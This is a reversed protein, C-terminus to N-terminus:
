APEPADLVERITRLLDNRLCPKQIFHQGKNLIANTQAVNKSYGSAFLFRVRPEAASIHQMVAWGGMKPMVVDLFALDIKGPHEKFVRLAEEGDLATLVTYGVRTLINKLLNLLPLEDEALLITESGGPPAEPCAIEAPDVPQDVAPLYVRFTSGKGPASQVRIMGNHQKVIGFVTSLGLGTGQGVEKTTFFPEFIRDRTEADMGCGTDTVSVLVYHGPTAWTHEQCYTETLTVAETSLTMRGGDPMADRANICLNMLVQEMQGQDAYITASSAGPVIRLEIHEGLIRRVMKWVGALVENLDLHTPRIVQRRSFALLQRTVSAAKEAAQRMEGFEEYHPVNADVQLLDLNGLIVQLLNNFDHAVGGALQGIAEMKQSQRLQEELRKRETIDSVITAFQGPAPSYAVVEYHKNLADAWHDFQQPVGTLAVEGYVEIWYDETAPMVERVTMGILSARDLGTLREFAPNVELFRYDVPKGNADCVIEHLAFGDLMDEFLLRYRHESEALAAQTQRQALAIAIQDAMSELFAILEPSFRGRMRDNLQLLGLTRGGHRLPILAVSEYGEGNCRNRTRAQRDAETTSALLETTCNSWFSGRPSFFPKTPDFRGCLINGCMCELVPNGAEDRLLQGDLDRACLRNESRIFEPPFGRTEFYPFDDGDRLRIGVAECGTWEHLSRTLQEILEHTRNQDNLLRMLKLTIEREHQGRREQTMDRFFGLLVERGDLELVNAKVEFDRLAGSKTVLRTEIVQGCMEGRHQAFVSSVSLPIDEPPHLISQPNGILDEREYELLRLLHQNCDLLIGSEADALAIGETAEEFLKRYRAESAKLAEESRKRETIDAVTILVQVTGNIQVPTTSILCDFVAGEGKARVTVRGEEHHIAEGTELTRLLRSRIACQPCRDTKGCGPEELAHPCFFVEGCPLGLLESKERGAFALGARNINKVCGDADLLFMIYPASDIIADLAENRSRLGTEAQARGTIDVFYVLLRSLTEECGSVIQAHLSVLRRDGSLTRMPIECSFATEGEALAVMADRFAEWSADEFFTSPDQPFDGKDQVGFFRVSQQNADVTKVRSALQRVEDPHDALHRRFDHVGSRRLEDLRQRVASCDEEWIPIPAHEFLAQVRQAGDQMSEHMQGGPAM